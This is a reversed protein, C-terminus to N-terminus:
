NRENKDKIKAEIARIFKLEGSYEQYIDSGLVESIEEDTLGQWERKPLEGISLKGNEDARLGYAVYKFQHETGATDVYEGAMANVARDVSSQAQKAMGEVFGKEYAANNESPCYKQPATYLPINYIGTGDAESASLVDGYDPMMWAVPEHVYKDSKHVREESTNVNQQKTSVGRKYFGAANLIQELNPGFLKTPMKNIPPIKYLPTVEEEAWDSPDCEHLHGNYLWAVPEQEPEYGLGLERANDAKKDLPHQALAEGFNNPDVPISWRVIHSEPTDFEPQALAQRLADIAESVDEADFTNYPNEDYDYDVDCTLLADLALEAAKRLDTQPLEPKALEERLTYRANKAIIQCSEAKKEYMIAEFASLAQKMVAKSM